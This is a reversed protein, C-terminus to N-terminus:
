LYTQFIFVQLYGSLLVAGGIIVYYIAYRTMKEDFTETDTNNMTINPDPPLLTGNPGLFIILKKIM